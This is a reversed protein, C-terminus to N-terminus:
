IPAAAEDVTQFAVSRIQQSRGDERVEFDRETLNRVLQGAGDRVIVDVLVLNLSSRFVPAQSQQARPVSVVAVALVLLGCIFWVRLVRARARRRLSGILM